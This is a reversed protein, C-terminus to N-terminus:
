ARWTDDCHSLFDLLLFSDASGVPDLFFSLGAPHFCFAGAGALGEPAGAGGWGGRKLTLFGLLGVPVGCGPVSAHRRGKVVRARGRM